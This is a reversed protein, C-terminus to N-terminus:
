LNQKINTLMSLIDDDPKLKIRKVSTSSTSYEQKDADFYMTFKGDDGMYFQSYKEKTILRSPNLQKIALNDFSLHAKSAASFLFRYWSNINDEVITKHSNYYFEGLRFNKYGLLLVKNNVEIIKNLKNYPTVGIIVHSVLHEYKWGCPNKRFSYGVGYIKKDSILKEILPLYKHFHIENITVNCILGSNSLETVFDEFDPHALANGGGIAIEVGPTLQKLIKLTPELNPHTEFRNSNEHCWQCGGDCFNTIKVDLSEPFTAEGSGERVKTGDSYIIVKYGGNKYEHLKTTIM